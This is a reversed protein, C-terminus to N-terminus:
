DKNRRRKQIHCSVVGGIDEGLLEQILFARMDDRSVSQLVQSVRAWQHASVTGHPQCDINDCLHFFDPRKEHLDLIAHHLRQTRAWAVFCPSTDLMSYELFYTFSTFYNISIFFLVLLRM